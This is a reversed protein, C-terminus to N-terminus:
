AAEQDSREALAQQVREIGRPTLKWGVGHVTEVADRGLAKRVRVMQVDILKDGREHARDNGPMNDILAERRMLRGNMAVLRSMLWAAQPQLGFHKRLRDLRDLDETVGLVDEYYATLEELDERPMKSLAARKM